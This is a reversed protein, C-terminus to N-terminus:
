RLAMGTQGREQPPVIWKRLGNDGRMPFQVPAGQAGNQPLRVDPHLVENSQKSYALWRRHRGPRARAAAGAGLEGGQWGQKVNEPVSGKM